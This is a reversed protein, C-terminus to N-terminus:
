SNDIRHKAFHSDFLDQADKIDQAREDEDEGYEILFFQDRAHEGCVDPRSFEEAKIIRGDPLQLQEGIFDARDIMSLWREGESPEPIGEPNGAQEM